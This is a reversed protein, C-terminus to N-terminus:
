TQVLTRNRAISMLIGIGAFLTVMATGGYSVFPLPVGVVPLIGTVMGINVFAYTFYILTVSGALLRAFLTPAGAAIVLGRGILLSCLILLILNGALGFEEALVAFVFDTHREPLFDLHAQTGKMWGKGAVGGSGVAITSQITHFGKGLPDSEPDLLTCIRHKQYEKFGPWSVEPSCLRDGASLLAVVAIVGALLAPVILKWSLGAFYIVSLGAALVLVATGLDPQKAILAVPALLLFGAVVFDRLRLAEERRQFYWALMLPVAIKMLESPQIRMVGLNLWRRAGKSVDGAVAVAVLLLIGALYAPIALRMLAQPPVQAILRMAILAVGINILQTNWRAPSDSSASALVLLGYAVLAGCIAMVPPDIPAVLRSWFVRVHLNLGGLARSHAM